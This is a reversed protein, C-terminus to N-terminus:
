KLLTLMTHLFLGGADRKFFIGKILRCLDYCFSITSVAGLSRKLADVMNKELDTIARLIELSRNKSWTMVLSTM